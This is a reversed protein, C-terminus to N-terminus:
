SAIYQKFLYEITFDDNKFHKEIIAVAEPVTVPTIGDLKNRATKPNCGLAEVLADSPTSYGKRALEAKLNNLM